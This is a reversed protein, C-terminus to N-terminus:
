KFDAVTDDTIDQVKVDCYAKYTDDYYLQILMVVFTDYQKDLESKIIDVLKSLRTKMDVTIVKNKHKIRDPNFRIFIIPKKKLYGLCGVIEAVRACECKYAKHQSEDIEVIICHTPLEVFLDPRKISLGNFMRSSNHIFNSDINQKIYQVVAWETKNARKKCDNCVYQSENTLDCYRCVKNISNKYEEEPCHQLCYKFNSYRAQANCGDESCKIHRVDVGDDEKHISCWRGKTTGPNGFSAVKGCDKNECLDVIFNIMGEIKGGHEACHIPGSESAYNYSARTTCGPTHCTIHMVDVMDDTKCDFCYLPRSESPYNFNPRVKNCKCCLKNKVDIMGDKKCDFCYLGKEEGPMNFSPQKNCKEGACPKNAKSTGDEGAHTRCYMGEKGEVTFHGRKDCKECTKQLVNVMGLKKGHDSCMIGKTEGKYNFNAQKICTDEECIKRTVDIMNPEKHEGCLIGGDEKNPKFNYVPTKECNEVQCKKKTNKKTTNKKAKSMEAQKKM